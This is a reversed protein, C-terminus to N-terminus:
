QPSRGPEGVVRAPSRRISGALDLPELDGEERGVRVPDSGGAIRSQFFARGPEVITAPELGRLLVAVDQHDRSLRVISPISIAVIVRVVRRRSGRGRRRRSGRGGPRGRSRREVEGGRVFSSIRSRASAPRFASMRKAGTDPAGDPHRGLRHPLPGLVGDLPERSPTRSARKGVVLLAYAVERLAALSSPTRTLHRAGRVAAVEENSAPVTRPSRRLASRIARFERPRGRDDTLYGDLSGARRPLHGHSVVRGRNARDVKRRRRAAAPGAAGGGRGRVRGRGGRPRDLGPGPEPEAEVRPEELSGGAAVDEDGPWRRSRGRWPRSRPRPGVRSAIRSASPRPSSGRRSSGNSPRAGRSTGPSRGWPAGGSRWVRDPRLLPEGELRREM